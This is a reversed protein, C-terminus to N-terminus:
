LRDFSEGDNSYGTLSIVKIVGEEDGKLKHIKNFGAAIGRKFIETYYSFCNEGKLEDFMWWNKFLQYYGNQLCDYKDDPNVYYFKKIINKGLLVLMREAEKSLKGQAKSVLIECYLDKNTIYKKKPKKNIM